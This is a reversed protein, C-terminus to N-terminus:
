FIPPSRLYLISQQIHAELTRYFIVLFTALLIIQLALITTSFVLPQHAIICIICNDPDSYNNTHHHLIVIVSLFLTIYLSLFLHFYKHFWKNNIYMKNM